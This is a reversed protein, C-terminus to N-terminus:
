CSAQRSYPSPPVPGETPVFEAVLREAARLDQPELENRLKASQQKAFDRMTPNLNNSWVGFVEPNERHEEDSRTSSAGRDETALILWKLAQTRDRPVGKGDLYALALRYQAPQYGAQAAKSLLRIALADDRPVDIGEGYLRGLAFLAYSDGGDAALEYWKVAEAINRSTGLGNEFQLGAHAQLAAVRPPYGRDDPSKLAELTWHLSRAYDRPVITGNLYRYALDEQCSREGGQACKEFWEIARRIDPPKGELAIDGLRKAACMDGLEYSKGFWHIARATDKPVANAPAGIMTGFQFLLGLNYAARHNSNHAAKELWEVGLGIDRGYFGEILLYALSYQADADGAFARDVMEAVQPVRQLTRKRLDDSADARVIHTSIALTAFALLAIVRLTRWISVTMSMNSVTAHCCATPLRSLVERTDVAGSQPVRRVM